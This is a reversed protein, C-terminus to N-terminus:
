KKPEINFHLVDERTGLGSYLAIPPDDGKDAQVFVVGAGREVAIARLADILQTAINRRRHRELVALDYLYIESREQELKEMEYAAIGGVVEGDVLAVLVIFHNRTLLKGLYYESSAKPDYTKEDEFAKGFVYLLERALETDAPSLQRIIAPSPNDM